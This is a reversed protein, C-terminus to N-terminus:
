LMRLPHRRDTRISSAVDRLIRMGGIIAFKIFSKEVFRSIVSSGQRDSVFEIIDYKQM